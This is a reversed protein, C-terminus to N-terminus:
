MDASAAAPATAEKFRLAGSLLTDSSGSALFNM